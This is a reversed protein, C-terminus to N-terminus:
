NRRPKPEEWSRVNEGKRRALSNKRKEVSYRVLTRSGVGGVEEFRYFSRNEVNRRDPAFNKRVRISCMQLSNGAIKKSVFKSVVRTDKMTKERTTSRKLERSYYLIRRADVGPARRPDKEM